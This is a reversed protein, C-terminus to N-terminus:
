SQRSELKGVSTHWVRCLLLWNIPHTLELSMDTLVLCSSSTKSTKQAGLYLVHAMCEVQNWAVSFGAEPYRENYYTEVKELMTSNNSANDATVGLLRDAVSFEELVEIMAESLSVGDHEETM